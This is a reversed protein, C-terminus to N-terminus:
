TFREDTDNHTDLKMEIRHKRRPDSNEINRLTNLLITTLLGRPDIWMTFICKKMFNMLLTLETYGSMTTGFFTTRAWLVWFFTVYAVVYRMSNVPGADFVYLPTRSGLM